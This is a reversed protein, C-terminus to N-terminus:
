PTMGGFARYFDWHKASTRIAAVDNNHSNSYAGWADATMRAFIIATDILCQASCRPEDCEPAHRAIYVELMEVAVLLPAYNLLDLFPAPMRSMADILDTTM